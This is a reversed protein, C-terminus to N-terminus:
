PYRLVLFTISGSPAYNNILDTNYGNVTFNGAPSAISGVDFLLGGTTSWGRNTLTGQITLIVQDGAQIGAASVTAQSFGGAGINGLINADFSGSAVVRPLGLGNILVALTPNLTINGSGDYGFAGGAGDVFVPGGNPAPNWNMGSNSPGIISPLGSSDFGFESHGDDSLMQGNGNFDSGFVEHGSDNNFLAQPHATARIPLTPAGAGSQPGILTLGSPDM